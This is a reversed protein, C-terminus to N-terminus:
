VCVEGPQEEGEPPPVGGLGAPPVGAGCKTWRGASPDPFGVAPTSLHALDEASQEMLQSLVLDIGQNEMDRKTVVVSDVARHGTRSTSHLFFRHALAHEADICM